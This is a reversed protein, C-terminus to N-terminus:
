FRSDVVAADSEPTEYWAAREGVRARLKWKLTKPAGEIAALLKRARKEAADRDAQELDYRELSGIVKELSGTFTRYIGWDESCLGVIHALNIKDAEDDQGLEHDILLAIIDRYDKDNMQVIQLKTELLDALALTEARLKIRRRLDLKHCMEFYDLFVDVRRGNGMDNFILRRGGQMANFAERPEYGLEAFLAKLERTESARGAFDADRYGRSLAEKAASPCVFRVAVGGLLRLTLGGEDANSLIRRSEALIDPLPSDLRSM